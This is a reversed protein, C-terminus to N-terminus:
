LLNYLKNMYKDDIYYENQELKRKLNIYNSQNSPDSIFNQQQTILFTEKYNESHNDFIIDNHVDVETEENETQNM